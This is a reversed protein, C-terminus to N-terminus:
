KQKRWYLVDSCTLQAQKIFEYQECFDCFFIKGNLYFVAIWYLLEPLILSLCSQANVLLSHIVKSLFLSCIIGSHWPKMRGSSLGTRHQLGNESLSSQKLEGRMAQTIFPWREWAFFPFLRDSLEGLILIYVCHCRSRMNFGGVLVPGREVSLCAKSLWHAPPASESSKLISVHRRLHMRPTQWCTELAAQTDSFELDLRFVISM